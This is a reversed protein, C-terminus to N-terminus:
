NLKFPYQLIQYLLSLIVAAIVDALPSVSPFGFNWVIVGSLWILYVKM